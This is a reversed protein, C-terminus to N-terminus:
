NYYKIRLTLKSHRPFVRIENKGRSKELSWGFVFGACACAFLMIIIKIVSRKPEDEEEQSELSKESDFSKESSIKVNKRMRIQNNGIETLSSKDATRDIYENSIPATM